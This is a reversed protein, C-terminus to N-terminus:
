RRHSVIEPRYRVIVNNKVMAVLPYGARELQAVYSQVQQTNGESALLANIKYLVTSAEIREM